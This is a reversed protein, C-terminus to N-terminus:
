RGAETDSSPSAPRPPFARFTAALDSKLVHERESEGDVVWADIYHHDGYVFGDGADVCGKVLAAFARDRSSCVAIMSEGEYDVGRVAVYITAMAENERGPLAPSGPM